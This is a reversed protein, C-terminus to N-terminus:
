PRQQLFVAIAAAARDRVEATAAATAPRLRLRVHPGELWYNIFFHGRILGSATLEQVLPAICEVLLPQPSAAYFIHIAQWEGLAAADPQARSVVEGGLRSM